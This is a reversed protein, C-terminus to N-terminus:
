KTNASDLPIYEKELGVGKVEYGKKLRAINVRTEVLARVLEEKSMAEYEQVGGNFVASKVKTHVDTKKILM